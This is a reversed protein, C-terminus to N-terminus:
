GRRCDAVILHGPAEAAHATAANHQPASSFPISVVVRAGGLDSSGYDIGHRSGFLLNLRSETASLGVGTRYAEGQPFGYGSDAVELVLEHATRRSAIHIIGPGPRGSIGHVIANEVLPQLLMAPVVAGGTDAGISRRVTLRQGFTLSQLQLYEDIFEMEESLTIQQPGHQDFSRRLLVSLRGLTEVVGEREGAIAMVSIAQLTNFFFHPNLQAQIARLRAQALKAELQTAEEYQRLLYVFLVIAFYFAYDLAFDFKLQFFFREGWALGPPSLKAPISEVLGRAYTFAFGALVHLLLPLKRQFTLPYYEALVIPISAMLFFTGWWYLFWWNVELSISLPHGTIRNFVYDHTSDIVAFLVVFAYVFVWRRPAIRPHPLSQSFDKM